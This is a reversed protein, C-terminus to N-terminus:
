LNKEVPWSIKVEVHPSFGELEQLLEDLYPPFYIYSSSIYSIVYCKVLEELHKELTIRDIKEQFLFNYLDLLRDINLSNKPRIRSIIYLLGKAARSLAAANKRAFDRIKGLCLRIFADKIVDRVDEKTDETKEYLETVGLAKLDDLVSSLPGSLGYRIRLVSAATRRDTLALLYLADAREFSNEEVYKKILGEIDVAKVM